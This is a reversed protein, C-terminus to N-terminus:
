DCPPLYDELEFFVEQCLINFQKSYTKRAACWDAATLPRYGGELHGHSSETPPSSAQSLDHAPDSEIGRDDNQEPVEDDSRQSGGDGLDEDSETWVRDSQRAIRRRQSHPEEEPSAPRRDQGLQPSVHAMQDSSPEGGHDDENGILPYLLILYVVYSNARM